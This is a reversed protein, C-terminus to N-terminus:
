ARRTGSMQKQSIHSCLYIIDTKAFIPSKKMPNECLLNSSIFDFNLIAVFQKACLYFEQKYDPPDGLEQTVTQTAPLIGGECRVYDLITWSYIPDCREM